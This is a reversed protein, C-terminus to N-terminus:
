AGPAAPKKYFLFGTEKASLMMGTVFAELQERAEAPMQDIGKIM